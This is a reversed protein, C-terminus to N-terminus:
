YYYMRGGSNGFRPNVINNYISGFTYTLGIMGYYSYQTALQKQHLLIEALTAGGKPLTLQDHIFNLSGFLNLSLGKFIRIEASSYLSLSNKSFDHMYNSGSLNLSISGWTQKTKLSVTLSQQYLNERTKLYLTTDHYNYYQYGIRYLFTLMRRTSKSYPFLDYELAPAFSCGFDVNMYTSNSMEFFYGTSWHDNLSKVIMNYFYNSRSISRITENDYKYSQNMYDNGFSFRIKWNKTIKNIGISTYFDSTKTSEEANLYTNLQIKFVWSKWKDEVPKNGEDKNFSINFDKFLPTKAMYRMLGMKIMQRQGQRMDEETADPRAAFVLTDALHAYKRKGIFFFSYSEGGSGTFERAVLIHVDAERRDRVYNVFTLEERINSEDCYRCDIFVNISNKRLSLTDNSKISDNRPITDRQQAILSFSSILFIVSFIIYRNITSKM